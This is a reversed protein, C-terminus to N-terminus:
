RGEPNLPGASVVGTFGRLRLMLPQTGKAQFIIEVDDQATGDPLFVAATTYQSPNVGDPAQSSDGNPDVQGNQASDTTTFRVGKPLAEEMVLVDDPSESSDAAGSGSGGWYTSSDPAVRYNGQGPIISFRYARGEDMARARASAWAARVMDSAAQVRYSSVMSDFSPYVIAALIVLLAMVLVLEFLTFAHRSNPANPSRILACSFHTTSGAL